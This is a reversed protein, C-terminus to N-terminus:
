LFKSWASNVIGNQIMWCAIEKATVKGVNRMTAIQFETLGVVDSVFECGAVTLCNIARQSIGMAKAPYQEISEASGAKLKGGAADRVGDFYGALYGNRYRDDMVMSIVVKKRRSM